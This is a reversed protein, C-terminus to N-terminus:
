QHSEGPLKISSFSSSRKRIDFLCRRLHEGPTETNAINIRTKPPTFDKPNRLLIPPVGDIDDEITIASVKKTYKRKSTGTRACAASKKTLSPSLAFLTGVGKKGQRRCLTSNPEPNAVSTASKCGASCDVLNSSIGEGPVSLPIPHVLLRRQKKATKKEASGSSTDGIEAAAAIKKVLKSVHCMFAASVQLDELDMSQSLDLVDAKVKRVYIPKMTRKSIRVDWTKLAASHTESSCQVEHEAHACEPNDAASPLPCEEPSKMSHTTGEVPCATDLWGPAHGLASTSPRPGGDVFTPFDSADAYHKIKELKV